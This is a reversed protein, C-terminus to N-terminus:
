GDAFRFVDHAVFGGFGSIFFGTLFHGFGTGRFALLLGGDRGLGFGFFLVM